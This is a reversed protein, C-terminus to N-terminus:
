SDSISAVMFCNLGVYKQWNNDRLFNLQSVLDSSGNAAVSLKSVPEPKYSKTRFYKIPTIGGHREGAVTFTRIYYAYQTYPKLHTVVITVPTSNRNNDPVDDVLWDDNGYGDRGDFM